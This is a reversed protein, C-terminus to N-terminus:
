KSSDISTNNDNNNLSNIYAVGRYLLVGEQFSELEITANDTEIEAVLDGPKVKDGINKHWKVVIGKTMSDTMKRMRVVEAM